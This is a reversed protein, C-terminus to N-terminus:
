NHIASVAQYKVTYGIVSFKIAVLIFNMNEM